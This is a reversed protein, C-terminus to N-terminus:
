KSYFYSQAKMIIEEAANHVMHAALSTGLYRTTEFLISEVPNFFIEVALTVASATSAITGANRLHLASFLLQSTLIRASPTAYLKDIWRRQTPNPDVKKGLYILFQHFVQRHLLEELIPGTFLIETATPYDESYSPSKVVGSLNPNEFIAKLKPKLFFSIVRGHGLHSLAVLAGKKFYAGLPLKKNEETEKALRDDDIAHFITYSSILDFTSRLFSFISRNKVPKIDPHSGSLSTEQFNNTNASQIALTM